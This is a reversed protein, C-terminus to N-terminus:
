HKLFYIGNIETLDKCQVTYISICATSDSWYQNFDLMTQRVPFLLYQAKGYYRIFCSHSWTGKRSGFYQWSWSSVDLHIKHYASPMIHGDKIKGKKMILWSQTSLIGATFSNWQNFSLLHALTSAANQEGLAENPPMTYLSFLTERNEKQYTLYLRSKSSLLPLPKLM